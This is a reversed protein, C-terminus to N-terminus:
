LQNCVLLAALVLPVPEQLVPQVQSVPQPEQLVPQVQSVPQPEQLVPQVLVYIITNIKFPPV